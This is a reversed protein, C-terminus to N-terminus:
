TAGFTFAVTQTEKPGLTVNATRSGFREHWAEVVYTGPPVDKLTFRGDADTVMFYPHDYVGLYAQMWPHIQCYHYDGPSLEATNLSWSQDSEIPTQIGSDFQGDPVPLQVNVGEFNVTIMSTYSTVTRQDYGNNTGSPPAARSVTM